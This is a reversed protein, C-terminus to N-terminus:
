KAPAPKSKIAALLERFSYAYAGMAAIGGLEDLMLGGSGGISAGSYLVGDDLTPTELMQIREGEKIWMRFRFEGDVNTLGALRPPHLPSGFFITVMEQAKGEKNDTIKGAVIYSPPSSGVSPTASFRVLVNRSAPPKTGKSPTVSMGRQIFVPTGSVKAYEFEDEAVSPTMWLAALLVSTLKM